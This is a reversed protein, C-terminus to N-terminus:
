CDMAPRLAGMVCDLEFPFRSAMAVGSVMRFVMLSFSTL